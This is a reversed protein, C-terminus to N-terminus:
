QVGGGGQGGGARVGGGDVGGGGGLCGWGGGRGGGNHGRIAPGQRRRAGRRRWASPMAKAVFPTSPILRCGSNRGPAGCSHGCTPTIRTWSSKIRGWCM